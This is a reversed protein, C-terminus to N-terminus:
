RAAKSDRAVALKISTVSKDEEEARAEKQSADRHVDQDKGRPAAFHTEDEQFPTNRCIGDIFCGPEITLEEHFLDADVHASVAVHVRKARVTGAVRGKIVVEAAYIDGKVIGAASINVRPARIDGEMAGDLQIEGPSFLTGEVRSGASVLCPVNPARSANKAEAATEKNERKSFM